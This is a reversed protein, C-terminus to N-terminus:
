VTDAARSCHVEMDPSTNQTTKRKQNDTKNNISMAILLLNDRKYKM